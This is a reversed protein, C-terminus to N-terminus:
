KFFSSRFVFIETRYVQSLNQESLKLFNLNNRTIMDRVVNLSQIGNTLILNLTDVPWCRKGRKMFKGKWRSHYGFNFYFLDYIILSLFNLFNSGRHVACYYLRFPNSFEYVPRRDVYKKGHKGLSLVSVCPKVQFFYCFIKSIIKKANHAFILWVKRNM